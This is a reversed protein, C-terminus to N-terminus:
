TRDTKPLNYWGDGAGLCAALVQQTSLAQQPWDEALQGSLVQAAFNRVMRTEQANRPDDFPELNGIATIKPLTVLDRGQMQSVARRVEFATPNGPTPLVFDSLWLSGSEGGISAWQRQNELFSCYFAASVGGEFIMEGSFAMPVGAREAVIRGCVCTPLQWKMSWLSLRICYWGLDGLCGLPELAQNSRINHEFFEPGGRVCFHSDIRRLRGVSEGDELVHRIQELRPNHMFMVGDMYQVKRRRCATLIKELDEVSVAAPKEALVHKGAAVANLIWETRVATPLPLYVADVLPSTVLAEYDDMAVPPPSLPEAEQCEGIFRRCRELDRSAVATLTSNGSHRIAKWYKRAIRATGLIGWRLKNM